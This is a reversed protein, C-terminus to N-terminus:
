HVTEPQPTKPPREGYGSKVNYRRDSEVIFTRLEDRPLIDLMRVGAALNLRRFLELGGQEAKIGMAENLLARVFEALVVPSRLIRSRM